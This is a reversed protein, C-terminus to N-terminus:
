VFAYQVRHTARRALEEHGLPVRLECEGVGVDRERLSLVHQRRFNDSSEKLREVRAGSHARQHHTAAGTEDRGAERRHAGADAGDLYLRLEGRGRADVEFPGAEALHFDDRTVSEVQIRSLVIRDNRYTTGQGQVVVSESARQRRTALQEHHDALTLRLLGQEDRALGSALERAGAQELGGDVRQLIRPTGLSELESTRATIRSTETSSSLAARSRPSFGSTSSTRSSHSNCSARIGSTTCTGIFWSGARSESNSRPVGITTM